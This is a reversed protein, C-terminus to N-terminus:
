ESLTVRKGVTTFPVTQTPEGSTSYFVVVGTTQFGNADHVTLTGTTVATGAPVGATAALSLFKVSKFQVTGRSLNMWVGHGPSALDPPMVDSQTTDTLTGDVNFTVLGQFPPQGELTITQMWTGTITVIAGSQQGQLASLMLGSAILGVIAISSLALRQFTKM